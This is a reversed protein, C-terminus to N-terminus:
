LRHQQKSRKSTRGATLAFGALSSLGGIIGMLIAVVIFLAYHGPLSFVEAMKNSLLSDNAADKIFYIGLWSLFVILMGTWFAAKGSPYRVFCAICFTLPAFIWWFMLYTQALVCLVCGTILIIIFKMSNM